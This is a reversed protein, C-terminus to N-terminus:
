QFLYNKILVQADIIRRTVNEVTFLQDIDLEEGRIYQNNIYAIYVEIPPGNYSSNKLVYYQFALDLIHEPAKLSTSSKVEILKTKRECKIFIDAKFNMREDLTEFSAEYLVQAGEELLKKTEEFLAKGYIKNDQSVDVGNPYLNRAIIGVETGKDMIMQQAESPPTKLEPQFYHLWISKSCQTGKQFPYKTLPKKM